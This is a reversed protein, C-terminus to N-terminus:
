NREFRVKFLVPSLVLRHMGEKNNYLGIDMYPHRCSPCVEPCYSLKYADEYKEIKFWNNITEAGPNGLVGDTIVFRQRTAYDYEKLKWVISECNLDYSLEINLDTNVRVVGAFAFGVANLNPTASVIKYYHSGARVIKGSTDIVQEPERNASGLLPKASLAFFLSFALFLKKFPVNSLALRKGYQDEYIGIDSCKHYCNKCVSPCYVFKYGDEYNEIKFWNAVTKSSPNGLVGNNTTVFWQGTSNDYDKLMWVTSECISEYAFYINLDTNVRVVGKKVNVPQFAVPQGRYGNPDLTTLVVDLPCTSKGTSTLSLGGVNPSTPVIYYNLGARILKGSTDVVQELASGAESLLPKTTLAFLLFLALLLTNKM